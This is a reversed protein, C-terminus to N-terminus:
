DTNVFRMPLYDKIILDHRVVHGIIWDKIMRLVVSRSLVKDQMLDMNLQTYQELIETHAQVHSAVVEEPMGFSKFISEENNFHATIQSGLQSLTESFTASDLRVQINADLSDLQAILEAHEADISPVGTLLSPVITLASFSTNKTM